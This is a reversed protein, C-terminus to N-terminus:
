EKRWKKEDYDWGSEVHLDDILKRIFPDCTMTRIKVLAKTLDHTRKQYWELVHDAMPTAL